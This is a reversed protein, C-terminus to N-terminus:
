RLLSWCLPGWGAHDGPCTAQEISDLCADLADESPEAAMESELVGTFRERCADVGGDEALGCADAHACWADALVVAPPGDPVGSEAGCGAMVVAMVLVLLRTM